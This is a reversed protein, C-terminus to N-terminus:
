IILFAIGIVAFESVIRKPMFDSHKMIKNKMM